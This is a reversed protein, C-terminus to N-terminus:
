SKQGVVVLRQAMQDYAIGDLSGFVQVKSFGGAYLLTVLEMASYSRVSVRHEARTTGQIVIWRTEIRSWHQSVKRESLILRDGEETWDREQFHAAVIEKGATEILFKGGARLSKHMNAVVVQDDAPDEFYGFSGFLNVVVDFTDPRCYARMDGLVFAANLHLQEAELRAKEIYAATRDVGVVDFGRRSFELSHRGQGCCLDLIQVRGEVHLLEVIKGVEAQAMAWRQRNFLVPEFLEWFADQSHWSDQDSM